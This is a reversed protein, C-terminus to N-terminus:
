AGGEVPATEGRPATIFRIEYIHVPSNSGSTIRAAEVNLKARRVESGRKSPTFYFEETRRSRTVLFFEALLDNTVGDSQNYLRVRFNTDVIEWDIEIGIFARQPGGDQGAFQQNGVEGTLVNCNSFTANNADFGNADNQWRTSILIATPFEFARETHVSM